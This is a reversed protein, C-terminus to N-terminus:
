IVERLLNYQYELNEKIYKIKNDDKEILLYYELNGIDNYSFIIISYLKQYNLFSPRNKIEKEMMEKFM